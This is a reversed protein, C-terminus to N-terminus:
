HDNEDLCEVHVVEGTDHFARCVDEPYTPLGELEMGINVSPKAIWIYIDVGDENIRDFSWFGKMAMEVFTRVYDNFANESLENGLRTRVYETNIIVQEREVLNPVGIVKEQLKRNVDRDNVRKPLKGCNSAFHMPINGIKCFWDIDHTLLYIKDYMM